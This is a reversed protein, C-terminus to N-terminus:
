DLYAGWQANYQHLHVYTAAHDCSQMMPWWHRIRTIVENTEVCPRLPSENVEDCDVSGRGAFCVVSLVVFAQEMCMLKDM